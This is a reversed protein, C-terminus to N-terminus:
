EASLPTASLTYSAPEAGENRVHIAVESEGTFRAEITQGCAFDLPVAGGDPNTVGWRLGDAACSLRISYLETQSEPMERVRIGVRQWEAPAIELTYTQPASVGLDLRWPFRNPVVPTAEVAPSTPM